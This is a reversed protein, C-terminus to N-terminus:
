PVSYAITLKGSGLACSQVHRSQVLELFTQNVVPEVGARVEAEGVPLIGTDVSTVAFRLSGGSCNPLGGITIPAAIPPLGPFIPPASVDGTLVIAQPTMTVRLNQIPIGQLAAAGAALATAQEQTLDFSALRPPQPTATSASPFTPRPTSALVAARTPASTPLAAITNAATPAALTVAISAASPSPSAPLTTATPTSSPPLLQSQATPPFPTSTAGFILLPTEPSCAMLVAVGLVACTLLIRTCLTQM